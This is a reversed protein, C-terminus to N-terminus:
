FLFFENLPKPLPDLGPHALDPQQDRGPKRQNEPKGDGGPSVFDEEEDVVLLESGCIRYETDIEAEINESKRKPLRSKVPDEVKKNQRRHDDGNGLVQISPDTEVTSPQRGCAHGLDM